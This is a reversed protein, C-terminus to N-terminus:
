NALFKEKDRLMTILDKIKWLWGQQQPTYVGFVEEPVILQLKQAQMEDTQNESIGAELTVLHKTTVRTGETLVQRWRDKCTTKAGLITLYQAEFHKNQYYQEGPFIFDPKAKNETHGNRTYRIKNEKFIYELHNEFARGARAKRRQVVSQALSVFHDVDSNDNDIISSRIKSEVLHKEFIRFLREEERLLMSITADPTAVSDITAGMFERTFDSFEISTPFAEGFRAKIQDLGAEDRDTKPEIGLDELIGRAVSGIESNIQTEPIIVFSQKLDTPIGFLWILQREAVSGMKAILLIPGSKVTRAVILLDGPHLRKEIEFEASYYLRYESRTLHSERADYWTLACTEREFSDDGLFYINARLRAKDEGFLRKLGAVGNIEHQHSSSPDTEVVSLRKAAAEKIINSLKM